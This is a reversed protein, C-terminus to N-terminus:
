SLSKIQNFIIKLRNPRSIPKVETSRNKEEQINVHIDVPKPNPISTIKFFIEKEGLQKGIVKYEVYLKAPYLQLVVWGPKGKVNVIHKFIKKINDKGNEGTELLSQISSILWCDGIDSQIVDDIYPGNEWYDEPATTKGPEACDVYHDTVNRHIYQGFPNAKNFFNPQKPPLYEM